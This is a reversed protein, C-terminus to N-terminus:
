GYLKADVHARSHRHAGAPLERFDTLAPAIPSHCTDSGFRMLAKFQAGNRLAGPKGALVRTEGRRFRCRREGIIEGGQRIGSRDAYAQIEIAQGVARIHAVNVTVMMRKIHAVEHNWDFQYAEGPAFSLTVYAGATVPGRETRWRKTYRQVADYSGKYSLGRPEEFM